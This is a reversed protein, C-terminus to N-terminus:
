INNEYNTPCPSLVSTQTFDMRDGYGFGASRTFKSHPINYFSNSCSHNKNIKHFFVIITIILM